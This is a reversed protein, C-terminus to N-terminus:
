GRQLWGRLHRAVMADSGEGGEGRGLRASLLELLLLHATSLPGSAPTPAPHTPHPHTLPSFLIPMYRRSFMPLKDHNHQTNDHQKRSALRCIHSDRDLTASRRHRPAARGTAGRYRTRSVGYKLYGAFKFYCYTILRSREIDAKAKQQQPLHITEKM